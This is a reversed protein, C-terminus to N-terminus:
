YSHLREGGPKGQSLHLARLTKRTEMMESNVESMLPDLAQVDMDKELVDMIKDLSKRMEHASKYAGLRLSSTKGSFLQHRAKGLWKKLFAQAVVELQANAVQQAPPKQKSKEAAIERLTPKNVKYKGSLQNVLDRYVAILSLSTNIDDQNMKFKEIASNLPGFSSTDEAFSGSRLAAVYDNILAHAIALTMMKGHNPGEQVPGSQGQTEPGKEPGDFDMPLNNKVKADRVDKPLGPAQVPGGTDANKPLLKQAAEYGARVKAWEYFISRLLNYSAKISDDSSKVIVVQFDELGKWCKVCSDLMAMRAKRVGSADSFGATPTLLRAFFRSFPNSGEKVLYKDEFAEGLKVLDSELAAVAPLSLQQELDPKPAEPAPTPPTQQQQQPLPLNLQKPQKKRRNKAYNVQEQILANGKNAIENFDGALSGIITAPDAPIPDVIRSKEKHFKNPWGNMLKKYHILDNVFSSVEKNWLAKNQRLKEQVPDSSPKRAVKIMFIHFIIVIEKFVIIGWKLPM